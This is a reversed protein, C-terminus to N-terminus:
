IGAYKYRAAHNWSDVWNTIEPAASAITTYADLKKYCHTFFIELHATAPLVIALLDQRANTLNQSARNWTIPGFVV